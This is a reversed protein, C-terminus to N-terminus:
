LDDVLGLVKGSEKEKIALKTKTIVYFANAIDILSAKEIHDFDIASLIKAQLETLQLGQLQRYKTLIGEHYQLYAIRRSLTPISVGMEKSIEKLHKGEGRMELLIVPDIEKKRRGV